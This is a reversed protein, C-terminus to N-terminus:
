IFVGGIAVQRVSVSGDPRREAHSSIMSRVFRDIHDYDTLVDWAVEISVPAMFGGSVRCAHASDDLAVTVDSVRARTAGLLLVITFAFRARHKAGARASSRGVIANMRVTRPPEDSPSWPKSCGVRSSRM